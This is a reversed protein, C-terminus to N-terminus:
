IPQSESKGYILAVNRENTQSNKLKYLYFLFVTPKKDIEHRSVACHIPQYWLDM